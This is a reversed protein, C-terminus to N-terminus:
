GVVIRASALNPIRRSDATVDGARHSEVLATAFYTGPRPWSHTTTLDTSSATGDVEHAFPYTGSGDFDWKVSIITGAGAPVEAHVDLTVEEGVLVEARSVGNPRVQVVPQIGDREAASPALTIKGDAYEFNTESPRIGQEVWAALVLHFPVHEANETWRLCFHARAGEAGREREVNNKM